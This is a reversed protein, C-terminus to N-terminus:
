LAIFFGKELPEGVEPGEPPGFVRWWGWVVNDSAAQGEKLPEIGPEWILM